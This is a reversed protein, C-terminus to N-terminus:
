DDRLEGALKRSFAGANLNDCYAMYVREGAQMSPAPHGDALVFKDSVEGHAVQMHYEPALWFSCTFGMLLVTLCMSVKEDLRFNSLLGGSVFPKWFIGPSPMLRSRSSIQFSM